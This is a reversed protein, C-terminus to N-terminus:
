SWAGIVENNQGPQALHGHNHFGIRTDMLWPMAGRSPALMHVLPFFALHSSLASRERWVLDSEGKLVKDIGGQRYEATGALWCYLRTRKRLSPM